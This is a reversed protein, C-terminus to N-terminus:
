TKKIKIGNQMFNQSNGALLVYGVFLLLPPSIIYSDKDLIHCSGTTCLRPLTHSVPVCLPLFHSSPSPCGGGWRRCGRGQAAAEERGLGVLSLETQLYLGYMPVCWFLQQPM